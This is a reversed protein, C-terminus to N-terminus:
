RQPPPSDLNIEFRHNPRRPIRNLDMDHGSTDKPIPNYSPESIAFRAISVSFALCLALGATLALGAKLSDSKM